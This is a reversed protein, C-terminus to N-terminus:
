MLMSVEDFVSTCSCQLDEQLEFEYGSGLADYNECNDHTRVKLPTCDSIICLVAAVERCSESNCCWHLGVCILIHAYDPLLYTLGSIRKQAVWLPWPGLCRVRAKRSGRRWKSAFPSNRTVLERDKGMSLTSPAFTRFINCQLPENQRCWATSLKPGVRARARQMVWLCHHHM